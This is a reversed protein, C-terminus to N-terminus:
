AIFALKLVLRRWTKWGAEAPLTASKTVAHHGFLSDPEQATHTM